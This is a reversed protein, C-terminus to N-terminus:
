LINGLFSLRHAPCPGYARIAERHAATGYGMHKGFGYVPYQADLVQMARDRTVKAIISAAAISYVRDDGKKFAEWPMPLSLGTIYDCLVRDPQPDLAEVARAFALRTANLINMSEIEEVSASGVGWSVCASLIEEYLKERRRPTLKKSDAVGEIYVGKPLIVAAAMVPGALPGRGAEDAGAVLIGERGYHEELQYFEPSVEKM